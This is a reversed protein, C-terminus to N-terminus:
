ININCFTIEEPIQKVCVLLYFFVYFCNKPKGVFIIDTQDVLRQAGDATFGIYNEAFAQQDM